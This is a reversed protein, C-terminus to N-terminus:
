QRRSRHPAERSTLFSWHKFALLFSTPPTPQPWQAQQVKLKKLVDLVQLSCYVLRRDMRKFIHSFLLLLSRQALMQMKLLYLATTKIAALYKRLTHGESDAPTHSFFCRLLRLAPPKQRQQASIRVLPDNEPSFPGPTRWFHQQEPVLHWGQALCWLVVLNVKMKETSCPRLRVSPPM